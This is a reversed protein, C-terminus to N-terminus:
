LDTLTKQLTVCERSRPWDRNIETYTKGNLKDPVHKPTNKKDAALWLPKILAVENNWFLLNDSVVGRISLSSTDATPPVYPIESGPDGEKNELDIVVDDMASGTMLYVRFGWSTGSWRIKGENTLAILKETLEKPSWPYNQKIM